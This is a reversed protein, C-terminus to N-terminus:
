LRVRGSASEERKAELRNGTESETGCWKQKAAVDDFAMDSVMDSSPM